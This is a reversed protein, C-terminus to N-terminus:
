WISSIFHSRSVAYEGATELEVRTRPSYFVYSTYGHHSIGIWTEREPGVYDDVPTDYLQLWVALQETAQADLELKLRKADIDLIASSQGLHLTGLNALYVFKEPLIVKRLAPFGCSLPKSLILGAHINFLTLKKV